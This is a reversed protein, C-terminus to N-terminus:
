KLHWFPPAQARSVLLLAILVIVQGPLPEEESTRMM